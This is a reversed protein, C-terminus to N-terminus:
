PESTKHCPRIFAKAVDRQRLKSAIVIPHSPHVAILRVIDGM